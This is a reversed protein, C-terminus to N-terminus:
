LRAWFDDLQLPALGVEELAEGAFMSDGITARTPPSLWASLLALLVVVGAGLALQLVLGPVRTARPTTPDIHIESLADMDPTATHTQTISSIDHQRM